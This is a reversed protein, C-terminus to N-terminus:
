DEVLIAQTIYPSLMAVDAPGLPLPYSEPHIANADRNLIVIEPQPDPADAYISATFSYCRRGAAASFVFQARRVVRSDENCFGEDLNVRRLGFDRTDHHYGPLLLAHDLAEVLPDDPNRYLRRMGNYM